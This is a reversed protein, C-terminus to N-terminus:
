LLTLSSARFLRLAILICLPMMLCNVALAPSNSPPGTPSSPPDTPSSPPDTPSSPPGTHSSLLVPPSGVMIWFKEYQQVFTACFTINAPASTNPAVWTVEICSQNNAASHSIASKETNFCNHLRVLSDNGAMFYGVATKTSSPRAQLMFGKFETGNVSELTVKIMEGPECTSRDVRVRYPATTNQSGFDGHTPTMSDCVAAISGNSFAHVSIMTCMGLLAFFLLRM